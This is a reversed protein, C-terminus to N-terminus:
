KRIFIIGDTNNGNMGVGFWSVGLINRENAVMTAIANAINNALMKM